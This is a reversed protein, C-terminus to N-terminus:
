YTSYSDGTHRNQVMFNTCLYNIQYQNESSFRLCCMVYVKNVQAYYKEKVHKSEDKVRELESRLETVQEKYM